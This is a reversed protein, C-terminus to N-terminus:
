HMCTSSAGVSHTASVDRHILRRSHLVALSSVVPVLLDVAQQWEVPVCATLDAGTLLEMTYFPLSGDVGYDYVEIIAPHVFQRLTYYEREFIHRSSRARGAARSARKLAVSSRTSIDRVRYVRSTGGEAL